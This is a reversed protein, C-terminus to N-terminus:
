LTVNDTSSGHMVSVTIPISATQGDGRAATLTLHLQGSTPPLGLVNASFVGSWTGPGVPSLSISASGTGISIRQVNTTTIANIRVTSNPQFVTPTLTAYFIQPADGPGAYNSPPPSGFV